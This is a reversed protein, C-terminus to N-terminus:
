VRLLAGCRRCRAPVASKTPLANGCGPCRWYRASVYVGYAIMALPFLFLWGNHWGVLDHAPTDLDAAAIAMVIAVFLISGGIIGIWVWLQVNRLYPILPPPASM